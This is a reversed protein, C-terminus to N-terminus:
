YESVPATATTLLDLCFLLLVPDIAVTSGISYNMQRSCMGILEQPWIWVGTHTHAPTYKLWENRAKM